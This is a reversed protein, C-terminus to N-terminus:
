GQRNSASRTWPDYLYGSVCADSDFQEHTLHQLSQQLPYPSAVGEAFPIADPGLEIDAYFLVLKDVLQQRLATGNLQSGAEILVNLIQLEGLRALAKQLSVQATEADAPLEEVHVGKAELAARRTSPANTTCFVLVDNNATQALQSDLPLQLQSDLVVRLLPRRRPLGSRDTLAPDDAMVTGIGTLIADSAHRLTQVHARATNGTLWHPSNSTRTHPPPAIKGDLSIAAKLTVFPQRTQIFKAFGDNLARAEQQRIDVTTEIGAARLKAIGNGSVLPNPDLTAAVVRRVGARILADACPGTRGQHSCPELTVYATAGAAANGAQKLAVIEAHDRNDYIHFGEGIVQADKVLVCGVAPNPSALGVSRWAQELALRMWDEDQMAFPPQTDPM